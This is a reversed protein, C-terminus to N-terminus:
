GRPHHQEHLRQLRAKAVHTYIETTALNSHGLLLQITRLDAGHDLLHTAFAHRLTHPSLGQTIGASRAYRKILHWFAQRTMAQARNSPFIADCLRGTLIGPRAHSLYRELWDAAEDGLPVIREKNGKGRIQVMGRTLDLETMKLSVLESVRLGTAYLTELMARDRLGSPSHIDPATILQAVQQESLSAPLNKVIRPTAIHVCPDAEICDLRDLYQYFSRITSLRRAQTRPSDKAACALYDAIDSRTASCVGTQRTKLYTRLQNIDTRYAQLTNSALGRELWLADLFSQVLVSDASCKLEAESQM